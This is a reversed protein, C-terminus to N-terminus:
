HPQAEHGEGHSESAPQHGEAAAEHGAAGEHESPEDLPTGCFVYEHTTCAPRLAVNMAYVAIMLSVIVTVLIPILKDDWRSVYEDEDFKKSM